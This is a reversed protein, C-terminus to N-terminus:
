LKVYYTPSAMDHSIVFFYFTKTKAFAFKNCHLNVFMYCILYKNRFGSSRFIYQQCGRPVTSFYPWNEAYCMVIKQEFFLSKKGDSNGIQKFKRFDIQVYHRIRAFIGIKFDKLCWFQKLIQSNKEKIKLFGM